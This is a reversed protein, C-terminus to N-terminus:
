EWSTAPDFPHEDIEDMRAWLRTAERATRDAIEREDVRTLRRDLVVADGGVYVDRVMRSSLGYAWHGALNDETLPTPPRHDLVVLDAPAGPELTGLLPEGLAAGAFRASAALRELM